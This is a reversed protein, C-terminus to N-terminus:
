APEKAFTKLIEALKDTDFYIASNKNSPDLKFALGTTRYMRYLSKLYDKTLGHEKCLDSIKMFKARFGSPRSSEELREALEKVVKELEAQRRDIRDLVELIREDYDRM